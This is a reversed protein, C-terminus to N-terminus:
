DAPPRSLPEDPGWLRIESRGTSDAVARLMGPTSFAMAVHGFRDVAILGGDGESLVQGIVEASAEELSVGGYQMMDGVRQAVGYRIFEEGTGTCSVACSDNDAWTGAGIIPSDGVRGFRKGTLGGTSTGAALNGDRDLAVCGVTGYKKVQEKYRKWSEMRRPTDFWENPVREVGAADAFREAGEGAFLVHRSREMVLRALRIPHRVTTVGAVAGCAHDAGNMISADLEHKGDHNFVAGKGANFRPDDELLSLAAEVADLSSGGEALIEKGADLAAGMGELYGRRVEENVDRPFVGAGGHIVLVWEPRPGDAKGPDQAGASPAPTGAECGALAFLLTTLIFRSFVRM